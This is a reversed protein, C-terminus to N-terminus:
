TVTAREGRGCAVMAEQPQPRRRRRGAPLLRVEQPDPSRSVGSVVDRSLWHVPHLCFPPTVHSSDEHRDPHHQDARRAPLGNRRRGSFVRTDVHHSVDIRSSIPALVFNVLTAVCPDDDGVAAQGPGPVCDGLHDRERSRIAPDGPAPVGDRRRRCIARPRAPHQEDVAAHHANREIFRRHQHNVGAVAGGLAPRDLAARHFFPPLAPHQEGVARDDANGPSSM